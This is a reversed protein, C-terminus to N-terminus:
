KQQMHMERLIRRIPKGVTSKPISAVFEFIRPRKYGTLQDHCYAKVEDVTLTPDSKVIYAKVKEGCQPDPIGIVASEKIKPHRSLVAEIENPFVNFGSVLVMDKKRDMIYFYGDEDRKAMDGTYLWGDRLTEATEKPANWYGKMVQPGKVVLEGVEGHPLEKGQSDVIKADTSPYPIGISHPRNEGKLPNCHTVPSAETLGFGEIVKNGTIKYWAENVAEQMAMGGELAFKISKPALKKFNPNNNLANYLTTVGTMVTIKYKKFMKVTNKIPVPKPILIMHHGLIMFSLLNVTLSFIHFLPLATLVTEEGDILQGDAWIATQAMNALINQQTLIAGRSIGTTGGTYQLLCVDDHSLKEPIYPRTKGAKLARLYSIPGLKTKSSHGQLRLMWRIILSKWKPLHDGLHTSIVHELSTESIISDLKSVFSDLTILARAECDKLQHLIERPTYLPNTMVPVVGIKQAAFLVIPLQITNPLMIVFRDGKKLELRHQLFSAFNNALENLEAYSITKGLGTLAPKDKFKEVANEFAQSLSHIKSINIEHQMTPSYHKYWSHSM